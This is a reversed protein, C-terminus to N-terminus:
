TVRYCKFLSHDNNGHEIRLALKQPRRQDLTSGPFQTRPDQGVAVISPLLESLGAHSNELRTVFAIQKSYHSETWFLNLIPLFTGLRVQRQADKLLLATGGDSCLIESLLQGKRWESISLLHLRSPRRSVRVDRAYQM